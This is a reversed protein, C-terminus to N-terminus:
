FLNAFLALVLASITLILTLFLFLAFSKSVVKAGM